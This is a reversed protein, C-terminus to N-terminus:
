NSRIPTVNNTRTILRNDTFRKGLETLTNEVPALLDPQLAKFGLYTSDASVLLECFTGSPSQYIVHKDVLNYKMSLQVITVDATRIVSTYKPDDRDRILLFSKEEYIVAFSSQAKPTAPMMEFDGLIIM